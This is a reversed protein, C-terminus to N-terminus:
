MFSKAYGRQVLEDNLNVWESDVLYFVEILSRGYKDWTRSYVIVEKGEVLQQVLIKAEEGEKTTIEYCNIRALRGRMKYYTNFGLDCYIILTDGDIVKEVKGKYWFLKNKIDSDTLKM